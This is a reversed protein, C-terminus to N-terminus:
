GAVRPIIRRGPTPRAPCTVGHRERLIVQWRPTVLRAPCRFRVVSRPSTVCGRARLSKVGAGAARLSACTLVRPMPPVPKAPPIVTPPPPPTPSPEGGPPTPAPTPNEAPPTTGCEVEDRYIRSDARLRASVAVLARGTIRGATLSTDPGPFSLPGTRVIAAAGTGGTPTITVTVDALNAPTAWGTLNVRATDAECAVTVNASALAPFALAGASLAAAVLLPSRHM